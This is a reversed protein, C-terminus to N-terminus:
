NQNTLPRLEGKKAAVRGLVLINGNRVNRHWESDELLKPDITLIQGGPDAKEWHRIFEESPAFRILPKGTLKPPLPEETRMVKGFEEPHQHFIEVGSHGTYHWWLGDQSKDWTYVENSQVRHIAM